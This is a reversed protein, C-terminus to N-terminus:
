HAAMEEQEFRRLRACLERFIEFSIAPEQLVIQRFREPSLMLLQTPEAAVASASRPRDEFNAMEGFFDGSTLTAIIHETDGRPHVIDVKGAVILYLDHSLDGEHFIEEGAQVHCEALHDAITRLQDLSMSSFLPIRKLFLLIETLMLGQEQVEFGLLHRAIHRVDDDVATDAEGM